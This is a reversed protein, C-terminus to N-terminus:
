GFVQFECIFIIHISCGQTDKEHCNLNGVNGSSDGGDELKRRRGDDNADDGDDDDGYGHYEYYGGGSYYPDIYSAWVMWRACGTYERDGSGSGSDNQGKPRDCDIYVGLMRYAQSWNDYYFSPDALPTEYPDTYGNGDNGWNFLTRQKKPKATKLFQVDNEDKLNNRINSNLKEYAEMPDMEELTEFKPKKDMITSDNKDKGDPYFKGKLRRNFRLKQNPNDSALVSRSAATLIYTSYLYISTM